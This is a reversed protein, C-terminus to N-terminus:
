ELPFAYRLDGAGNARSKLQADGRSHGVLHILRLCPVFLYLSQFSYFDFRWNTKYNYKLKGNNEKHKLKLLHQNEICM